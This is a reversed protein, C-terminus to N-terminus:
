APWWWQQAAACAAAACARPSNSATDPDTGQPSVAGGGGQDGVHHPWVNRVSRGASLDTM